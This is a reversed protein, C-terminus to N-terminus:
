PLPFFDQCHMDMFDLLSFRKMDKSYSITHNIAMDNCYQLLYIVIKKREISGMKHASRKISQNNPNLRKLSSNPKLCDMQGYKM